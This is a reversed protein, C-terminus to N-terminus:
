VKSLSEGCMELNLLAREAVGGCSPTAVPAYLEYKPISHCLRNCPFYHLKSDLISQSMNTSGSLRVAGIVRESLQIVAAGHGYTFSDKTFTTNELSHTLGGDPTPAETSVVLSPFVGDIMPLLLGDSVSPEDYNVRSTRRGGSRGTM